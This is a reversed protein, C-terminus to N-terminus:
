SLRRIAQERVGHGGHATRDFREIMGHQMERPQSDFVRWIEHEEEAPLEFGLEEAYRRLRELTALAYKWNALPKLLLVRRETASTSALPHVVARWAGRGTHEVGVASLGLDFRSLREELTPPETKHAIELTSQRFTFVDAFPRGPEKQAGRRLLVEILADRDEDSPAWLDLDRPATGTLLTKFAGGALFFRAPCDLGITSAIERKAFDIISDDDIRCLTEDAFTRVHDRYAVNISSEERWFFAAELYWPSHELGLPAALMRAATPLVLADHTVFLHLGPDDACVTLMHQVLFRAAHEPSALGPLSEDGQALSAMIREHGLDTWTRFAVRGDLVFAGPDGLLRDEEVDLRRGAGDVIAGATQVCRPVPSTRLTRLRTGVRAGLQRAIRVGDETIALEYGTEGAAISPRVSHRILVAVPRHTPLEDLLRDMSPPIRWQTDSM